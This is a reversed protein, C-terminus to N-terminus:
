GGGCPSPIRMELVTGGPGSTLVLHGGLAAVRERLSAPGREDAALQEGTFRGSFPFGRGNDTVRLDVGGGAGARVDIGIETASGHRVANVVAERALLYMERGVDDPVGADDIALELRTSLSWEIEARSALDRLREALGPGGSSAGLPVPRLERIFLRLDRQELGILRRVDDLERRAASPDEDLRRAAAALRLAIGTLSQLVGDHLDRALRIREETAAAAALSAVLTHQDLRAAVVGAAVEALDLDDSTMGRKDLLFLRGSFTEGALPASLCASAALREVLREHLPRGRWLRGGRDDRRLVTARPAAADDTLFSAADLAADVIPRMEGPALREIALGNAATRAFRLGPEEREEWVIAARPAGVAERAWDLLEAVPLERSPGESRPRAALRSIELRARQEHFGMYGLLVAVVALYVARIIFPNLELRGRPDNEAVHLGIAVILALAASATWLTGKWQWRVTACVVAFVFFAIFPSSIGETLFVFVTFIALDIAQTALRQFGLPAWSRWVLVAVVAGFALYAAMLLYVTGANKAPETPDLWVALLSAGALVVRGAAILREARSQPSYLSEM